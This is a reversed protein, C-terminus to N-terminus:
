GLEGGGYTLESGSTVYRLGCHLKETGWYRRRLFIGGWFLESVCGTVVAVSYGDAVDKREKVDRQTQNLIQGKNVNLISFEKSYFVWLQPLSKDFLCIFSCQWCRRILWISMIVGSYLLCAYVSMLMWCWKGSSHVQPELWKILDWEAILCFPFMGVGYMACVCEGWCHGSTCKVCCDQIFSAVIDRWSM